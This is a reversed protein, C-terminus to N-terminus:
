KELKSLVSNTFAELAKEVGQIMYCPCGTGIIFYRGETSTDRWLDLWRWRIGYPETPESFWTMLRYNMRV